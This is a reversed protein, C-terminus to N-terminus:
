FRSLFGLSFTDITSSDPSELTLCESRKVSVYATRLTESGTVRDFHNQFPIDGELADLAKTLTIPLREPGGKKLKVPDVKVEEPLRMSNAIGILGAAIIATVALYPNATSDMVKYEFNLTKRDSPDGSLRLPAERNNFGWCQYAGSWTSPSIRDYSNPNPTTFCMLSPLHSLVGAAFSEGVQSLGYNESRGTPDFLTKGNTGHFSFHCHCGNGAQNPFPKPLFCAMYGRQNAISSIAEKAYVLDDTAQAAGKCGLSIEFQGDASEPHM